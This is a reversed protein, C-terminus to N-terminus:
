WDILNILSTIALIVVTAALVVERKILMGKKDDKVILDQKKYCVKKRIEDNPIKNEKKFLEEILQFSKLSIIENQDKNANEPDLKENIDKKAKEMLTTSDSPSLEVTAAKFEELSISGDSNLDISKYAAEFETEISTGCIENVSATEQLNSGEQPLAFTVNASTLCLLFALTFRTSHMPKQTKTKPKQNEKKTKNTQQNNILNSLFKV